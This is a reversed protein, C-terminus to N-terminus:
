AGGVSADEDGGGQDIQEKLVIRYVSAKLLTFVLSTKRELGRLSDLIAPTPNNALEALIDSLQMANAIGQDTLVSVNNLTGLLKGYEDLLESELETLDEAGPGDTPLLSSSLGSPRHDAM